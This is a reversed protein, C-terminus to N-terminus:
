IGRHREECQDTTMLNKMKGEQAMKRNKQKKKRESLSRQTGLCEWIPLIIQLQWIEYMGFRVCATANKQASLFTQLGIGM